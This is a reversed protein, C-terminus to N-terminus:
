SCHGPSFIAFYQEGDYVCFGAAAFRKALEESISGCNEARDRLDEAKVGYSEAFRIFLGALHKCDWPDGSKTEFAFTNLETGGDQDEDHIVGARAVDVSM